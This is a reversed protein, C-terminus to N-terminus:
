DEEEEDDAAWYFEYLSKDESCYDVQLDGKYAQTADTTLSIEVEPSVQFSPLVLYAARLTDATCPDVALVKLTLKVTGPFKDAKNKIAIGDTVKREYKVIFKTVTADTPPTLVGDSTIAFQSENATSGVTYAKGTTGSNTFEKVKATGTVYDKLTVTEGAKVTIIKPMNIAAEATASVPASGSAEGLINVNLMANQAEFTGTKGKWFKKVLNGDKDKAEKSEATISVTADQLQTLAQLLNGEFDEALGYQIRDVIIDGIKFAM